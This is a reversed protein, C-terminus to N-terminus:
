EAAEAAEREAARKIKRQLAVRAAFLSVEYLAVLAAFMIFMTIPSADPTVVASLVLLAIYAVRWNSRLKQYPVIDFLILYFIVLPLEFAIGFAILFLM